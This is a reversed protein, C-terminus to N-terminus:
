IQINRWFWYALQYPIQELKKNLLHLFQYNWNKGNTITWGSELPKLLLWPGTLHLVYTMPQECNGQGSGKAEESQTKWSCMQHPSASQQKPMHPLSCPPVELTLAQSLGKFKYSLIHMYTLSIVLLLLNWPLIQKFVIKLWRLHNLTLTAQCKV